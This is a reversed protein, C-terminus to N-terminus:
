FSLSNTLAWTTRSPIRVQAVTGDPNAMIPVLDRKAFLDHGNLQIRWVIKKTLKREYGIWADYNAESPAYIPMSVDTVWIGADSNYKPYYGIAAKDQWRVAGGVNVNKFIGRDFTYNTVFNWRWKRLENVAQGNAAIANQYPGYVNQMMRGGFTDQASSYGIDGTWHRIQSFGKINWYNLESVPVTNYGDFWLSKNQQIFAAWDSLINSRVATNRSANFTLRWNRTPNATLELEVGKSVLDNTLKEGSPPGEGWIRWDDGTIKAFQEAKVWTPDLPRFWQADTRAAFWAQRYAMEDASLFPALYPAGTAPNITGPAIYASDGPVAGHRIRLPQTVLTSLQSQWNAPLPQAAISKDYSDGFFWKNVLFEPTTQDPTRATPGWAEQALANMTRAVGAKAWYVMGSPDSMSTNKQITKYWTMRFAIKNDLATVLFGRDRTIGSPAALKGGYIDTGVDSPRFSNSDNYTYSVDIGKPLHYHFLDLLQNFHVVLGWSRRQEEASLPTTGTFNWNPSFPQVSGFSDRILASPKDWREYRDKRWGFLPLIADNIFRGQWVFSKSKTDDFGQAAGTYLANLNSQWNDVTVTAKHWTQTNNDWLLTNSSAAPTQAATIGQIASGPIADFTPVNLLSTGIYHGGWWAKYNPSQEYQGGYTTANWAYLNFSRNFNEYRQSAFVGTFTQEGVIKTLLNGKATYDALNLKYYGTARYAERNESNMQGASPGLILPRGVDPNASGDRMVTNVDVTVRDTAIANAFGSRYTQRDYALNFGLRNDLYTQTISGNIADFNNWERKNPGQMTKDIFALPGSLIMQTPWLSSGFGSFTKGTTSQFRNIIQTVTPNNSFYAATDKNWAGTGGEDWNANTVGSLGGWPVGDRQRYADMNGNGITGTGPNQFITAPSDNWWDRAPAGAFYHSLEPHSAGTPDQPVGNNTLPNYMLYHKLPGFWNTIFDAATVAVPRNASIKGSEGKVDIQTFVRDALVPQWRLAGYVRKDHNFTFDQRYKENDNLGIVRLGVSNKLLPVDVDLVERTSGYSNVRFQAEAALQRMNPDKLTNNIIGAPSGLGFLISNPGRQIDVRSTNYADMPINTAFFDRTLDATNLGRVRTGSQPNVLMQTRYTADDANTGYYNGDIGSAETNTQYVLIHQLDTAGTDKIFEPTVVSVASGLDRLNTNLRSGALSSSAAYGNDKESSVEFPSLAIVEDNGATPKPAASATQAITPPVSWAMLAALLTAARLAVRRRGDRILQKTQM